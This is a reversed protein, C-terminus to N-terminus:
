EEEYIWRCCCCCCVIMDICFRCVCVCV